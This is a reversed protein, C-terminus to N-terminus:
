LDRADQVARDILAARSTADLGDIVGRSVLRWPEGRPIMAEVRMTQRPDFSATPRRGVTTPADGSVAEHEALGLQGPGATTTLGSLTEDSAAPTHLVTTLERFDPAPPPAPALPAHMV